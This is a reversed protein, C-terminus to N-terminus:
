CANCSPGIPPSAEAYTFSSAGLAAVFLQCAHVEGTAADVVDITTGAYDVFMLRTAEHTVLPALGQDVDDPDTRDEETTMLPLREFLGACRDRDSNFLPLLPPAMCCCVSILPETAIREDLLSWAPDIAAPVQWLVQGLAELAAPAM